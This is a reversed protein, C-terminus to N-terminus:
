AVGLQVSPVRCVFQLHLTLMLQLNAPCATYLVHDSINFAGNRRCLQMDPLSWAYIVACRIIEGECTRDKTQTGPPSVWGLWISTLACQCLLQATSSCDAGSQSVSSQRRLEEQRGHNSSM